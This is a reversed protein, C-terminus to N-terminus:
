EGRPRPSVPHVGLRPHVKGGIQRVSVKGGKGGGGTRETILQLDTTETLLINSGETNIFTVAM